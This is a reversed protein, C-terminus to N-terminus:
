ETHKAKSAKSAEKEGKRVQYEKADVEICERVKKRTATIDEASFASPTILAILKEDTVDRGIVGENQCLLGLDLCSQLMVEAFKLVYVGCDYSNEQMPAKVELPMVRDIGYQDAEDNGSRGLSNAWEMRLFKFYYDIINDNLYRRPKLRSVDHRIITVVDSTCPPLPYTLVKVNADVDDDDSESPSDCFSTACNLAYRVYYCRVSTRVLAQLHEKAHEKDNRYFWCGPDTLKAFLALTKSPM